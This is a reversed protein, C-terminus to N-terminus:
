LKKLDDIKLQLEDVRATITVIQDQYYAKDKKLNDIEQKIQKISVRDSVQRTVIYTDEDVKEVTDLAFSNVTFLLLFIVWM